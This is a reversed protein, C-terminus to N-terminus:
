TPEGVRLEIAAVRQLIATVSADLGGLEELKFELVAVREQLRDGVEGVRRLATEIPSISSTELSSFVLTDMTDIVRCLLARVERLLEQRRNM